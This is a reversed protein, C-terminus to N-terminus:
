DKEAAGDAIIVKVRQKDNRLFLIPAKTRKRFVNLWASTGELNWNHISNM